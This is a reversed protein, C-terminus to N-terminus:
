YVYHIPWKCKEYWSKSCFVPRWKNILRVNPHTLAYGEVLEASNDTSGDNVVLIECDKFDISDLCRVIVPACNYMPIIISLLPSNLITNQM